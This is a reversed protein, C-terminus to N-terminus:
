DFIGSLPTGEPVLFLYDGSEVPTQGGPEGSKGSCDLTRRGLDRKLIRIKSSDVGPPVGGDLQIAEWVTLPARFIRPFVTAPPRNTGMAVPSKEESKYRVVRYPSSWIWAEVVLEENGLVRLYMERLSERFAGLTLGDAIMRAGDPTAVNGDKGVGELSGLTSGPRRLVIKVMDDRRIIRGPETLGPASAQQRDPEFLGLSEKSKGACGAAVLAALVFVPLLKKSKV